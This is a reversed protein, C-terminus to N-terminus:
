KGGARACTWVRVCARVNMCAVATSKNRTCLKFIKALPVDLWLQLNITQGRRHSWCWECGRSLVDKDETIAAITTWEAVFSCSHFFSLLVVPSFRSFLKKTCIVHIREGWKKQVVSLPKLKKKKKKSNDCFVPPDLLFRQRFSFPGANFLTLNGDREYMQSTAVIRVIVMRLCARLVGAPSNHFSPLHHKSPGKVASWNSYVPSKPLPDKFLCTSLRLM